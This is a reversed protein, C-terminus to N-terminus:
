KTIILTNTVENWDVNCGLAEAAARAPIYTRGSMLQTPVDMSKEESNVWYTTNGIQMNVNTDATYIWVMNEDPDEEISTDVCNVDELPIPDGSFQTLIGREVEQYSNNIVEDTTDDNGMLYLDANKGLSLSINYKQDNMYRGPESKTEKIGDKLKFTLPTLKEDEYRVVFISSNAHHGTVLIIETTNDRSNIDTVYVDRVWSSAM